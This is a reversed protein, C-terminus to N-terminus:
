LILLCIRVDTEIAECLSPAHIGSSVGPRCELLVPLSSALLGRGRMSLMWSQIVFISPMLWSFTGVSHRSFHLSGEDQGALTGDQLCGAQCVGGTEECSEFRTGLCPGAM